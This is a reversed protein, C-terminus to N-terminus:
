KWSIINSETQIFILYKFNFTRVEWYSVCSVMSTKIWMYDQVYSTQEYVTFDWERFGDYEKSGVQGDVDQTSHAPLQHSIM